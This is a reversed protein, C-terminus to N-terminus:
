LVRIFYCQCTLRESTLFGFHGNVAFSNNFVGQMPFRTNSVEQAPLIPLVESLGLASRPNTQTM